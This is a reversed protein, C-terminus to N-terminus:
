RQISPSASSTAGIRSAVPTRSTFSGSFHLQFVDGPGVEYERPDVPGALPASSVLDSVTTSSPVGDLLDVPHDQAVAMGATALLAALMTAVVLRSRM